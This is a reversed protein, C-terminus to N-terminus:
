DNTIREIIKEATNGDGYIELSKVNTIPPNTIAKRLKISSSGVLVNGGAKVTEVEETENRLTICPINLWYAEKQLGGSDTIILEAGKELALMQFYPVPTIFLINNFEEILNGLIQKTNPHIPMVAYKNLSCENITWMLDILKNKNNVNEARHITVLSYKEPIEYLHHAENIYKTFIDYSIDGVDHVESKIGERMLNYISSPDYCFLMKSLHDAIIRNIEEPVSKNFCRLGAEVHILPINMKAAILSGALTSNTDGFVLIWDIDTYIKIQEELAILMRGVMNGHDGGSIELDVDPMPVRLQDFFSNYMDYDYHQGTHVLFQKIQIFKHEENFKDIAITLAAAKIYQPRGGIITCIRIIKINKM